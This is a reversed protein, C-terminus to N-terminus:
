GQPKEFGMMAATAVCTTNKRRLVFLVKDNGIRIETVAVFIGLASPVGQAVRVADRVVIEL